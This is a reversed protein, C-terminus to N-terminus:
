RSCSGRGPRGLRAGPRDGRGAVRRGRGRGRRGGRRRGGLRAARAHAPRARARRPRRGRVAARRPLVLARDRRGLLPAAAVAAARLRRRREPDGAVGACLVLGIAALAGMANWYGLPQELRGGASISRDLTVLWPAVRESLGEAVVVCIGAALVPEALRATEPPRLLVTAALLTGLYLALRQADGYAPGLLPAWAFSAVTLVLLGALGGLALLAPRGRPFPRPAAVALGAVLLWVAIGAM